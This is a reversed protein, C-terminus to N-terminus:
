FYLLYFLCQDTVMSFTSLDLHLLLSCSIGNLSPKPSTCLRLGCIQPKAESLKGNEKNLFSSLFAGVHPQSHIYVGKFRQPELM